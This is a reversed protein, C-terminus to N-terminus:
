AAASGANPANASHNSLRRIGSTERCSQPALAHFRHNQRRPNALAHPWQGIVRGLWQQAHTARRQQDVM